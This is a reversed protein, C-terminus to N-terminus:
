SISMKRPYTILLTTSFCVHRTHSLSLQSVSSKHQLDYKVVYAKHGDLSKQLIIMLTEMQIKHKERNSLKGIFNREWVASGLKCVSLACFLGGGEFSLVNFLKSIM